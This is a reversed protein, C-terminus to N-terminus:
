GEVIQHLVQTEVTLPHVQRIQGRHASGGCRSDHRSRRRSSNTNHGMNLNETFDGGAIALEVGQALAEGVHLKGGGKGQHQGLRPQLQALQVFGLQPADIHVEHFSCDGMAALEAPPAALGNGLRHSELRPGHRGHHIGGGTQSAIGEHQGGEAALHGQDLAAGHHRDQQLVAQAPRGQIGLYAGPYALSHLQPLARRHLGQQRQGLPGLDDVKVGHERM